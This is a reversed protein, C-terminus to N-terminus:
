HRLASGIRVLRPYSFKGFIPIMILLTIPNLNHVIGNPVGNLKMPSAQSVPNSTMPGYPSWIIPLWLSVHCAKFGRRVEDVWADDFTM